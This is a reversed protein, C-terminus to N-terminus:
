EVVSLYEAMIEGERYPGDGDGDQRLEDFVVQAAGSECM